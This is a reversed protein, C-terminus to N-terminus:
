TKATALQAVTKWKLRGSEFVMLQGQDDALERLRDATGEIRAEIAARVALGRVQPDDDQLSSLVVEDAGPVDQIDAAAMRAIAWLVGKLFVKEEDEVHLSVIIPPIDPFQRPSACAIQALLEPASWGMGGSEERASWILRQVVNRVRSVDIGAVAAACVEMAAVAHWCLVDEKDFAFSILKGFVRQNDVAMRAVEDYNGTALADM